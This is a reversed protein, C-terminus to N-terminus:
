RINPRSLAIYKALGFLRLLRDERGCCSRLGAWVSEDVEGSPWIEVMHGALVEASRGVVQFRRTTEVGVKASLYIGGFVVFDGDIADSGGVLVEEGNAAPGALGSTSTDRTYRNGM